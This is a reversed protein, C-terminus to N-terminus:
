KDDEEKERRGFRMTPTKIRLWFAVSDTLWELGPISAFKGFIATFYLYIYFFLFAFFTGLFFEIALAPDSTFMAEDYAWEAAFPSIERNFLLDWYSIMLGQIMLSSFILLINYKVLKSLKFISRVIILEMVVYSLFFVKEPSAWIKFASSQIVWEIFPLFPKLLEPFYGLSIVNSLVSYILDILALFYIITLQLIQVVRPYKGNFSQFPKQIFKLFKNLNKVFIQWFSSNTNINKTM